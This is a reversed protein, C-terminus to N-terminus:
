MKESIYGLVFLLDSLRNLYKLMSPQDLEVCSVMKREARRCVARAFNLRAAIDTTGPLIFKTLDKYKEEHNKMTVELFDVDEEVINQISSPCKGKFGVVGMMRYLDNQIRELIEHLDGRTGGLKAVAKVLGVAAQVEDLDGLLEIFSSAKSVREGGFLSTKGSDGTKTTINGMVNIKFM